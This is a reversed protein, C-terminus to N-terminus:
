QGGLNIPLHKGWLVTHVLPMKKLVFLRVKQKVGIYNARILKEYCEDYIIKIENLRKLYESNKKDIHAYAVAVQSYVFLRTENALKNQGISDLWKARDYVADVIDTFKINYKSNMISGNRVLYFYSCKGTLVMSDIQALIKHYVFADEYLREVPYRLNKFIEAKYLRNCANPRLLTTLLEEGKLITEVSTPSYLTKEKGDEYVSIINGTAVEAGTRRLASYMTELADNTIWDDSDVFFVYEGQMVDLAVNRADSLGGNEKHIVKVRKDRQAYTDCIAGCNDPSGDDVLLLEFDIFTQELISDICKNIYKEVKYVPVIVSIAPM